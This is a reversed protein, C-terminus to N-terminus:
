IVLILHLQGFHGLSYVQGLIVVPYPIEDFAICLYPVADLMITHYPMLLFTNAKYAVQEEM